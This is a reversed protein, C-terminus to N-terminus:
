FLSMQLAEPMDNKGGARKAKEIQKLSQSIDILYPSAPLNISQGFLMRKQANVLYLRQKARTMGVYFLRREEEADSKMGAISLPVIGNECGVIFVAAFELGKSAHLTCLSVKEVRRVNGDEPRQLLVRDTLRDADPSIRAFQMFRQWADMFEAQELENKWSPLVSIIDLVQCLGREAVAERMSDLEACFMPATGSDAIQQFRVRIGYDRMFHRLFRQYELEGGHGSIRRVLNAAEFTMVGRGSVLMLLTLADRVPECEGLAKSGSVRYPIGSRM